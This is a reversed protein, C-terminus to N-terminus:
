CTVLRTNATYGDTAVAYFRNAPASSTLVHVDFTASILGHIVANGAKDTIDTATPYAAPYFPAFYPDFLWSGGFYPTV